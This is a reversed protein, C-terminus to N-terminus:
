NYSASNIYENILDRMNKPKYQLNSIAKANSIQFSKADSQRIFVKSSSHLNKIIIKVIEHINLPGSSGIPTINSGSWKGELSQIIFNSLDKVGVANNFLSDPNFIFIDENSKARLMVSSLWHDSAYNGLISPLRMALLRSKKNESVVSLLCREGFYKTIGYIGPNIIPTRESVIQDNIEGYVSMSSTYILSKVKAYKAYSAILQTGIVNSRLMENISVYNDRIAALHVIADIRKPLKQYSAPDSIDMKILNIPLNELQNNIASQNTHRVTATVSWNKKLVMPIFNRGVFSSAGTVLLNM